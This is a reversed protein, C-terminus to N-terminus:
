KHKKNKHNKLSSITQFSIDTECISCKHELKIHRIEVHSKIGLMKAKAIGCITCQFKNDTREVLSKIKLELEALLMQEQIETYDLKEVRATCRTKHEQIM